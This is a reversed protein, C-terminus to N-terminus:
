MLKGFVKVLLIRYDMYHTYIYTCIIMPTHEDDDVVFQTCFSGAGKLIEMMSHIERQSARKKNKKLKSFM